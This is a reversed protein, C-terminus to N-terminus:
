INLIAKDPSAKFLIRGENLAIDFNMSSGCSMNDGSILGSEEGVGKEWKQGQSQSMMVMESVRPPNNM